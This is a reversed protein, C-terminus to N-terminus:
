DNNTSFLITIILLLFASILYGIFLISKIKGLNIVFPGICAGVLSTVSMVQVAVGPSVTTKSFIANSVIPIVPVGAAYFLVAIM